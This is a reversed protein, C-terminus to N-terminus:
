GIRCPISSFHNGVLPVEIDEIDTDSLIDDKDDDARANYKALEVAINRRRHFDRKKQDDASSAIDAKQRKAVSPWFKDDRNRQLHAETEAETELRVEGLHLHLAIAEAEDRHRKPTRSIDNNDSM